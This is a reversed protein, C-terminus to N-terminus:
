WGRHGLSAGIREAIGSAPNATGALWPGLRSFLLLGFREADQEAEQHFNTRAALATAVAPELDAGEGLLRAAMAQDGAHAGCDGELMHWIEHGAIVLQHWDAARRDIAIIDHTELEMWLGTATQPPFVERRLIVDRGRRDAALRILERLIVETDTPRPLELDDLSATFGQALRRMAKAKGKSM